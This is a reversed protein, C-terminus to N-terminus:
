AATQCLRPGCHSTQAVNHSLLYRDLGVLALIQAVRPSANSVTFNHGAQCAAAYLTVLAAIGAADIREVSALDLSVSQSSVLPMVRDLLHLDHGRVLETPQASEDAAIVLAANPECMAITM